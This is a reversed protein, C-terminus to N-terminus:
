LPYGIPNKDILHLAWRIQTAGGMGANVDVKPAPSPTGEGLLHNLSLTQGERSRTAEPSRGQGIFDRLGANLLFDSAAAPTVTAPEIFFHAVVGIVEPTNGKMTFVPGGSMGRNVTGDIFSHHLDFSSVMGKRVLPMPYAFDTFNTPTSLGLAFGCYYVDQGLSVKQDSGLEIPYGHCHLREKPALVSVDIGQVPPSVSEVRLARWGSNTRIEVSELPKTGVVHQATVLYRKRNVDVTFATGQRESTRIHFTRALINTTPFM